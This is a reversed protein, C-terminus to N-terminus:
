YAGTAILPFLCVLEQGFQPFLKQVDGVAASLDVFPFLNPAVQLQLFNSLIPEICHRLMIHLCAESVNISFEIDVRVGHLDEDLDEIAPGDEQIHVHIAADVFDRCIGM